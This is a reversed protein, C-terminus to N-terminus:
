EGHALPPISRWLRSHKLFKRATKPSDPGSQDRLRQGSMTGRTYYLRFVVSHLFVPLMDGKSTNVPRLGLDVVSKSANEPWLKLEILAVVTLGADIMLCIESRRIVRAFILVCTLCFFFLMRIFFLLPRLGM